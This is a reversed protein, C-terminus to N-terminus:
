TSIKRKFWADINVGLILFLLATQMAPNSLISVENVFMDYASQILGSIAGTCIVVHMFNLFSAM